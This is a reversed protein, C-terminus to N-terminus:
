RQESPGLPLGSRRYRGPSCGVERRFANIFNSLDGFGVDYAVRTVPEATDRLLATAHRIRTRLLFRYPTVGMVKKFERVFHFPSLGVSEALEVVTLDDAAHSEIRSAAAFVQERLTRGATSRPRASGSGAESLVYSALTLALEELGLAAGGSRLRQEALHRFADIRPLPALVNVAFPRRSAGRRQSEALQEVVLGRYDFVLCQDGGGHEHSAEYSQGANGLLASGPTLLQTPQESHIGFVGSRVIAISTSPFQEAQPPDGRCATCHYECVRVLGERALERSPTPGTLTAEM